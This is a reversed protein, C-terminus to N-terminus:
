KNTKELNIDIAVAGIIMMLAMFITDARLEYVGFAFGFLGLLGFINRFAKM